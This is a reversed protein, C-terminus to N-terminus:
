KPPMHRRRTTTLRYSATPGTRRASYSVKTGIQTAHSAKQDHHTSLICNTRNPMCFLVGQDRNPLWVYSRHHNM